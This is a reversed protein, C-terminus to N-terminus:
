IYSTIEKKTKLGINPNLLDENYNSSECHDSFFSDDCKHGFKGPQIQSRQQLEKANQIIDGVQADHGYFEREEASMYNKLCWIRLEKRVYINIVGIKNLWLVLAAGVIVM